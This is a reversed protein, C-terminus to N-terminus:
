PRVSATSSSSGLLLLLLHLLLRRKSTTTRHDTVDYAGLQKGYLVHMWSKFFGVGLLCALAKVDGHSATDTYHIHLTYQQLLRLVLLLLLLPRLSTSTTRPPRKSKPRLLRPPLPPRHLGLCGWRTTYVAPTGPKQLAMSFHIKIAIIQM